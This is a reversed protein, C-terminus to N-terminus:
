FKRVYSAAYTDVDGGHNFDNKTWDLRLGDKDTFFYQGGAGYAFAEDARTGAGPASINTTTVGARAFIDFRDTIPLKAVGFAGFENQIKVGNDKKVGTSAEGEVAFYKGFNAGIRGTVAGPNVNNGDYQTYGLNGYLDVQQASAPALAPAILAAAGAVLVLKINTSKTM